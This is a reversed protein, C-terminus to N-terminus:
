NAHYRNNKYLTHFYEMLSDTLGCDIGFYKQWVVNQVFLSKKLGKGFLEKVESDVLDLLKLREEKKREATTANVEKYFDGWTKLEM